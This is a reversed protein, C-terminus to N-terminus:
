IEEHTSVKNHFVGRHPVPLRVKWSLESTVMLMFDRLTLGACVHTNELVKVYYTQTATESAATLKHKAEDIM